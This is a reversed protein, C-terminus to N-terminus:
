SYLPKLTSHGNGGARHQDALQKLEDKFASLFQKGQWAPHESSYLSANLKRIEVALQDSCRASLQGLNTIDEDEYAHQAWAIVTDRTHAADNKAAYKEVESILRRSTAQSKKRSVPAPRTPTSIATTSASTRRFLMLTTIIWASAFFLAAWKWYPLLHDSGNKPAADDALSSQSSGPQSTPTSDDIRPQSQPLQAAPTNIMPSGNPVNIVTEAITATETKNTKTNWWQLKIEPLTFSGTRGPIMALKIQKSGTIGGAHVMNEVVAKDPYQKLGDVDSFSLEPLQVGTLGEAEITITRTVPEGATLNQIDDSWQEILQVDSAPLWDQLNINGPAAKVTAEITKSRLRKLQGSMRFQDFITRPQTANVRGEFTAPNIKLRGSRQPFIAYRREYVEYRIGNRTTQYSDEGIQEIIADPDSTEPATISASAINVTRLLRVTYIFQSQVWGSKKDITSELFIKAPVTSQGDPSVSNPSSSNKVTVQIAPSIDKGFNIPPITFKGVDKAIVTLDWSKKLSWNGNVSRMNTSQSSSLVDFYKYLPTFDPDDDVSSDAEYIIHFSDDLTVPNRSTSVTINAAHTMSSYLSILLLTLLLLSHLMLTSFRQQPERTTLKTTMPSGTSNISGTSNTSCIYDFSGPNNNMM